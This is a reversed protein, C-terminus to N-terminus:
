RYIRVGGFIGAFFIVRTSRWCATRQGCARLIRQNGAPRSGPARQLAEGPGRLRAQEGKDRRDRRPCQRLNSGPHQLQTNGRPSHRDVRQRSEGVTVTPDNATPQAAVANKDRKMKVYVTPNAALQKKTYSVMASKTEYGDKRFQFIMTKTATKKDVHIIAPTTSSVLMGNLYVQADEPDSQLAIEFDKAAATASAAILLLATICLKLYKKM